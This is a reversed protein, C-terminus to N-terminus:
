RTQSVRFIAVYSERKVNTMGKINFVIDNTNIRVDINSESLRTQQLYNINGSVQGFIGTSSAILSLFLISKKMFNTTQHKSVDTM